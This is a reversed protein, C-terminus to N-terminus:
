SGMHPSIPNSYESACGPLGSLMEYGPEHPRQICSLELLGKRTEIRSRLIIAGPKPAYCARARQHRPIREVSYRPVAGVM